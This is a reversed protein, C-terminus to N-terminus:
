FMNEATDAVTSIKFFEKRIHWEAVSQFFPFPLALKQLSAYETQKLSILTLRWRSQGPTIKHVVYSFFAM